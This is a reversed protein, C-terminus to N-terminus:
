AFCKTEYWLVAIQQNNAELKWEGRRAEGVAAFILGLTEPLPVGVDKRVAWGFWVQMARLGLRDDRLLCRITDPKM